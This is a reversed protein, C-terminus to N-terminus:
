TASTVAALDLVMVTGMVEVATVAERVMAEVRLIDASFIPIATLSQIFTLAM